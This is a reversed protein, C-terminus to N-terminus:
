IVWEVNESFLSAYQSLDENKEGVLIMNGQEMPLVIGEFRDDRISFQVEVPSNNIVIVSIAGQSGQLVLHASEYAPLIECPKASRVAFNHPVSSQMLRAGANAMSSNVEALDLVAYADGATIDDIEESDHYLHELLEDAFAMDASSPGENSNLSIVIGVALVLSAAVAYYQFFSQKKARIPSVNSSSEPGLASDQEPISLLRQAMGEPIEPSELEHCLSDEFGLTDNLIKQYDPNSRAADLVEQELDRPNAYVRKRFELENM